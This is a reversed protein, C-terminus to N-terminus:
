PQRQGGGVGSADGSLRRYDRATLGLTTRFDAALHAQDAYGLDAAVRAITLGPDERLRLAAEQLRYRRIIRLPSLGVYRKSVRQLARTSMGMVRALDEVTIVAPDSAVIEVMMDALVAGEPVGDGDRGVLRSWWQSMVRAAAASDHADMAATVGAALDDYSVGVEADVIGGPDVDLVALGAARLLVGFAWGRGTLARESAATTPGSLGIGRPEVVLNAAPFPLLSQTSVVGDSLDWRAIWYWRALHAVPEPVARRHFAPLSGPYLVGRGDDLDGM